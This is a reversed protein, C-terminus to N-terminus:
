QWIDSPSSILYMYLILAANSVELPLPPPRLKDREEREKEEKLKALLTAEIPTCEKSMLWQEHAGISDLTERMQRRQSIWAKYDSYAPPSPTITPVHVHVTKRSPEARQNTKTVNSPKWCISSDIIRRRVPPKKSFIKMGVRFIHSPMIDRQHFHQLQEEIPLHDIDPPRISHLSCDNADM